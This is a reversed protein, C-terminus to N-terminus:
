HRPPRLRSTADVLFDVVPSKRLRRMAIVCEFVSRSLVIYGLNAVDTKVLEAVYQISEVGFALVRIGEIGRASHFTCLRVNDRIAVDRRNEDVTYDTFEIKLENLASRTWKVELGSTSPVLILLDIPKQDGELRDIQDKIVRGYESVMCEGQAQSYRPDNDDIDELDSDDLWAISPSAGEPRSFEFSQQGTASSSTFKQLIADIRNRDLNAQHFLHALQFVPKTNRFNRRLNKAVASKRFEELWPEGDGPYLQQGNGAAVCITTGNSARLELMSLAWNMMDQSEDILLTDFKEVSDPDLRMEETLLEGWADYEGSAVSHNKKSIYSRMIDFVDCIELSGPAIKLRESQHAMRRIDAALVKNYCAYLVRAGAQAHDWGIQLLRFTKGTGPGGSYVIRAGGYPKADGITQKAVTKEIMRLKELDSPIQSPTACSELIEKIKQLQRPDHVFSGENAGARTPPNTYIYRLVNKLTEPGGVIDDEFIMSNGLTEAIEKNDRWRSSWDSSTIRPWCATSVIYPLKKVRPHLFERLRLQAEYAQKQPTKKERRGEIECVNLGFKKIAHIPVAKIEIVFVGIEEHWLLCDVDTVGPLYDLNFWLHLKEDDFSRLQKAVNLEGLHKPYETYLHSM